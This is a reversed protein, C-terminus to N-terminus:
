PRPPYIGNAVVCVLIGVQPPVIAFPQGGGTPDVTVTGGGGSGGGGSVGGLPVTSGGSNYMRVANPGISPPAALFSGASPTNTTGPAASVLVQAAGGGGGGGSPTFTAGHTHQPLQALGLQATENGRMQGRTVNTLGPGQGTGVPSRGRLDPLGFTTRGDGGYANGLLSFLAQYESANLIQGAAQITNAPCYSAATMCVTGIYDETGCAAADRPLGATTAATAAALVVAATIRHKM